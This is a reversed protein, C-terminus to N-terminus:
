ATPTASLKIILEDLIDKSYGIMRTYQLCLNYEREEVEGDQLVMLVLTQLELTKQLGEQPIIFCLSSLNDTIPFTDEETLGLQQGITLLFNSEAEDIYNDAIAVMVLNQFFALKKDKTEFFGDLSIGTAM